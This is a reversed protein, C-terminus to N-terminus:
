SLERFEENSAHKVVRGHGRRSPTEILKFINQAYSALDDSKCWILFIEEDDSAPSSPPPQRGPGRPSSNKELEFLTNEALEIRYRLQALRPASSSPKQQEMKMVPQLTVKISYSSLASALGAVTQEVVGFKALVADQGVTTSTSSIPRAATTKKVSNGTTSVPIAARITALSNQPNGLKEQVLEQSVMEKPPTASEKYRPESSCPRRFLPFTFLSNRSDRLTHQINDLQSSYPPLPSTGNTLTSETM